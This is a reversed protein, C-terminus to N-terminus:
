KEGGFFVEAGMRPRDLILEGGKIVLPTQGVGLSLYFRRHSEIIYEAVAKESEGPIAIGKLAEGLPKFNGSCTDNSYKFAEMFAKQFSAYFSGGSESKYDSLMTAVLTQTIESNSADTKFIVVLRKQPHEHTLYEFLLSYCHPCTLSIVIADRHLEGAIPFEVKTRGMNGDLVFSGKGMWESISLVCVLLYAIVALLIGGVRPAKSPRCRMIIWALAFAIISCLHHTLCIPCVAHLYLLIASFVLGGSGLFFLSVLQFLGFRRGVLAIIWLPIAFMGVPVGLVHSFGSFFAGDCLEGCSAGSIAFFVSSLALLFGSVCLLRYLFFLVKEM